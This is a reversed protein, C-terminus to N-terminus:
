NYKICTEVFREKNKWMPSDPYSAISQALNRIYTDQLAGGGIAIVNKLYVYIDYWDKRYYKYRAIDVSSFLYKCNDGLSSCMKPHIKCYTENAKAKEKEIINEIVAVEKELRKIENQVAIEYNNINECYKKINNELETSLSNIKNEDVTNQFSMNFLKKSNAIINKNYFDLLNNGQKVFKESNIGGEPMKLQPKPIINGYEDRIEYKNYIYDALKKSKNIIVYDNQEKNKTIINHCQAVSKNINNVTNSVNIFFEFNKEFDFDKVKFINNDRRNKNYTAFTKNIYKSSYKKNLLNAYSKWDIQCYNIGGKFCINEFEQVYENIDEISVNNKLLVKYSNFDLNCSKDETCIKNTINIYNRMDKFSLGTNYGNKFVDLSIKCAGGESCLLNYDEEATDALVNMSYILIILLSFIFIKNKSM